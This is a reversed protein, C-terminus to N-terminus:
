IQPPLQAEQKTERALKKQKKTRGANLVTNRKTKKFRREERKANDTAEFARHQDCSLSFGDNYKGNGTIGKKCVFWSGCKKCVFVPAMKLFRNCFIRGKM